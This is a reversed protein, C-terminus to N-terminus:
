KELAETLAPHRLLSSYHGEKALDILEPHENILAILKPQDSAPPAEKNQFKAIIAKAAEIHDSGASPDFKAILEPSIVSSLAKKLRSPVTTNEEAQTGNEAFDEVENVAGFHNLALAGILCIAAAPILTAFLRFVLQFTSRPANEEALRPIPSRFFGIIKRLIVYTLVFGVIPIATTLLPSPNETWQLTLAPAENWLWFGVLGSVILLATNIFTRAIGRLFMYIVCCGFTILVATGLSIEPLSDM